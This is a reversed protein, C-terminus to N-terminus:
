TLQAIPDIAKCIDAHIADLNTNILKLNEHLGALGIGKYTKEVLQSQAYGPEVQGDATTSFACTYDSNATGSIDITIEEYVEKIEKNLADELNNITNTLNSFNNNILNTLEDCCDEFERSLDDCNMYIEETVFITQTAEDLPILINATDQSEGDAVTLTLVDSQFSGDLRLNSKVHEEGKPLPILISATDQSNGDAVTLTLTESQFIGNIKLNSPEPRYFHADPISQRKHGELDPLPIPITATDQSIGDAVTLTLVDLFFSGDLKLNTELKPLTVTESDNKNGVAVFVKLTNDNSNVALSVDVDPEPADLKPLTVTDDDSKNGVKVFVKLSNDNSNAALNVTVDDDPIEITVTDQSTVDAVTLTLRESQFSGNIRINSDYNHATPIEQQVHANFSAKLFALDQELVEIRNELEQCKSKTCFDPCSSVIMMEVIILLLLAKLARGM